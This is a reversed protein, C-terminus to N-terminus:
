NTGNLVEAIKDACVEAFQSDNLLDGTDVYRVGKMTTEKRLNNVVDIAAIEKDDKGFFIVYTHLIYRGENLFTPRLIIIKGEADEPFTMGKVILNRVVNASLKKGRLDSYLYEPSPRERISNVDKFPTFAEENDVLNGFPKNYGSLSDYIVNWSKINKLSIKNKINVESLDNYGSCGTIFLLILFVISKKM